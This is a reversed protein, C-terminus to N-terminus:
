VVLDLTKGKIVAQVRVEGGLAKVYSRLTSLRYDGGGKETRAIASQVSELRTALEVQTIGIFERLERLNFELVEAALEQDIEKKRTETVKSNKRVDKWNHLKMINGKKSATEYNWDPGRRARM